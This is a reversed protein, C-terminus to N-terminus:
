IMVRYVHVHVHLNRIWFYKRVYYMYIAHTRWRVNSLICTCWCYMYMYMYITLLLTLKKINRLWVEQSSCKIYNDIYMYMYIITWTKNLNNLNLILVHANVIRTRNSSLNETEIHNHLVFGHHIAQHFSQSFGGVSFTDWLWPLYISALVSTHVCHLTYVHICTQAIM